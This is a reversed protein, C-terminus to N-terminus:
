SPRLDAMALDLVTANMVLDTGQVSIGGSQITVPLGTLPIDLALAKTAPGLIEAPISAGFGEVVPKGTTLHVTNDQVDVNLDAAVSIKQGAVTITQTLRVGGGATTVTLGARNLEQVFQDIPVKASLDARDATMNAANGSIADSLPFRVTYLDVQGGVSLEGLQATTLAVVIHDYRGRIAQTLFPFGTIDVNPATSTQLERALAEGARSEAIARGGFDAGVLLAVLVILTILLKRV